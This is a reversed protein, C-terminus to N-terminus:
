PPFYDRFYFYALVSSGCIPMIRRSVILVFKVVHAIHVFWRARDLPACFLRVIHIIDYDVGYTYHSIIINQSINKEFFM